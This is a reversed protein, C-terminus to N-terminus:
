LVVVGFIKFDDTESILIDKYDKNLSVLKNGSLKKVYADSNVRCIVIQGDRAESTGKVFIIQKDDFLPTMSNGNVRVAFDHEPVEGNFEVEEENSELWEGSGASVYGKIMISIKSKRQQEKLQYEAFNYVKTQRPKELQNYITEISPVNDDEWGMLFAPTTKLIEAIDGLINTPLKEIDGKEYRFITSRSVGLKEAVVDASLKLEKRRLKIREGIDM